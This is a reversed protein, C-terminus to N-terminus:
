RRKRMDGDDGAPNTFPAFTEADAVERHQRLAWGVTPFALEDWPIEDHAFLRTELSEPGPSFAGDVLDARYILQVQSIRPINYVALLGRLEIRACAEERTERAAGQETTENEELYGAPLTWYGVRPEIARRCLLVRGEWRCVAGVVIQPNRYDIWGCTECIDRVRDDGEPVRQVFSPERTDDSM